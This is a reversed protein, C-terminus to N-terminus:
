CSLPGPRINCRHLPSSFFLFWRGLAGPKLAAPSTFPLPPTQPAAGVEGGFRGPSLWAWRVEVRVLLLGRGCDRRREKGTPTREGRGPSWRLRRGQGGLWM